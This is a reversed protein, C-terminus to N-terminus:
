ASPRRAAATGARPFTPPSGLDQEQAVLEGDQLPPLRAARVQVPCVPCQVRGQEGHYRFRPALPRRKSTVGSVIRRQRRSMARRRHAALDIRPLVLLGTVRPFM